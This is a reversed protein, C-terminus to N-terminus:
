IIRHTAEYEARAEARMDYTYADHDYKCVEDCFYVSGAKLMKDTLGWQGCHECMTMCDDCWDSILAPIEDSYTSSDSWHDIYDLASKLETEDPFRKIIKYIENEIIRKM